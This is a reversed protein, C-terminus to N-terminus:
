IARGLEAMVRGEIAVTEVVPIGLDASLRATDIFVGRRRSEDVMNLVLVTPRGLRAIQWTLMLARRLNRADAVQVIVDVDREVLVQRAVAEDESLVGELTAVGPTDVVEYVEGGVAAHGSTLTVTTGPYNSVTAYLGTLRGFIASKGVNANGVLAVLRPHSRLTLRRPASARRSARPCAAM